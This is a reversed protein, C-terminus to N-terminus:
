ECKTSGSGSPTQAPQTLSHADDGITSTGATASNSNGAPVSGEGRQRGASHHPRAAAPNAVRLPISPGGSSRSNWPLGSTPSEESRSTPSANLTPQNKITTALTAPM